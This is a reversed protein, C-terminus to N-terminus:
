AAAGFFADAMVKQVVDDGYRDVLGAFDAASYAMDVADILPLDGFRVRDALICSKEFLLELPPPTANM